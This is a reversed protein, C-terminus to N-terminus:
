GSPLLSVNFAELGKETRRVQFEVQVGDQIQSLQGGVVDSRHFFVDDGDAMTVFGYGKQRNFWKVEGILKLEVGEEELPFDEVVIPPAEKARARPKEEQEVPAVRQPRQPREARLPTPSPAGNRHEPCLHPVQVNEEGVREALRRQETVTFFFPKGCEECVLRQDRFVM